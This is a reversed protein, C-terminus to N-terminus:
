GGATPGVATAKSKSVAAEELGGAPADILYVMRKPDFKKMRRTKGDSTEIFISYGRKQMDEIMKRAKEVEGSDGEPIELRLHGRGTQLVDLTGVEVETAQTTM